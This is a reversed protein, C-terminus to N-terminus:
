PVPVLKVKDFWVKGTDPATHLYILDIRIYDFDKTAEVGLQQYLTWPTTAGATNYTYYDSTGDVHHIELYVRATDAYNLNKGKAWFSFNFDAGALGGVSIVQGLSKHDSAGVFRFSCAGAKSQNCVRKDALTLSSGTWSNPIGDHDSDKEFSGNKVLNTSAALASGVFVALVLVALVLFSLTARREASAHRPINM